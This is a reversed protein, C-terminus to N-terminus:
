SIAPRASPESSPAYASECQEGRQNSPERVAPPRLAAVWDRKTTLRRVAAVEGIVREWHRLVAPERADQPHLTIRLLTTADARRLERAIAMRSYARRLASTPSYCLNATRVLRWEPLCYIGNRVSVYTFRHRCADLADRTGASMLWAPPVFGALPWGLSEFMAIGARIRPAAEDSTLAAFEGEARTLLRREIFARATRPPSAEDLHFMGHLVLEQGTAIRAELARRFQPDEPVPARHHYDPIVLLSACRVGCHDLMAFLEACERWTAPSVDHVAVVAPAAEAVGARRM